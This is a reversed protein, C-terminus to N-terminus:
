TFERNADESTFRIQERRAVPNRDAIGKRLETFSLEPL